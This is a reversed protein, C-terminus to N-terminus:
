QDGEAAGYGEHKRRGYEAILLAEARGHDKVRSLPAEPWYCRALARSADKDKGQLGMARKWVSPIVTEYPIGLSALVGIIVGYGYGTKFTSSVGQKPMAQAQEVFACLTSAPHFGVLGEYLDRPNSPMDWVLPASASTSLCGIAGTVGPDIGLIVTRAASVNTM